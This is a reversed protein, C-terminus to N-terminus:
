VPQLPHPEREQLAVILDADLARGIRELTSLRPEPGGVEIRAIAAQSTAARRALDAQILGKRLRLARVQAGLDFLRQARGYAARGDESNGVGLEEKLPRWNQRQEETM